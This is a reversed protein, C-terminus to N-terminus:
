ENRLVWFDYNNTASILKDLTLECECWLLDIIELKAYIAALLMEDAREADHMLEPSEMIARSMQSLNKLTTSM